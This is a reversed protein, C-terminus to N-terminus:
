ATADDGGEGESVLEALAALAADVDRETTFCGFSFRVAGTEQTSLARHMRPACHGGARVAIDYDHGLVDAVESSEWGPLNVSVVPAHDFGPALLGEETAPFDGYVTAGVRRAGTVFRRTLALDHAHIADLGKEAIWAAAASLGAIGHGNLTGAELHEPYGEPQGEEFSLVGTGGRLVPHVNVGPAVALGGTGQPGMLAKHGTFAVLDIGLEDMNIPRAGATQACDLLVLAGAAHAAAVVRALEERALVNGTLNSAHTLCVLSTGPVIADVLAGMDLVGRRDAAAFSLSVGREDRLRYLPRLTSNHDWDTAVVRGGDPVTGLIAMNLAETANAAFVLREPHGFGLLASVRERALAISRAAALESEHAGRGCSGFTRLADTVASVVCEPRQHSTAACNLYIM